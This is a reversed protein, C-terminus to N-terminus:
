YKIMFEKSLDDFLKKEEDKTPYAIGNSFTPTSIKFDFKEKLFKVIEVDDDNNKQMLRKYHNYVAVSM